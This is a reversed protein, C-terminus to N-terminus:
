NPPTASLQNHLEGLFYECDTVIGIAQHTGRDTLKIVTDADTDVCYTTVRAPLINGVAVSHLMTAVMLCVDTDGVVTRMADTAELVNSIVDPLPGDDRISGCLVYPVHNVVCTHMVGGTIEGNDV